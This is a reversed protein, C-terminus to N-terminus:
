DPAMDRQHDDEQVVPGRESGVAQWGMSTARAAVEPAAHQLAQDFVGARLLTRLQATASAGVLGACPSALLHARRRAVRVAGCRLCAAHSPASLVQHDRWRLPPVAVQQAAPVSVEAPIPKPSFYAACVGWNKRVQQVSAACLRAANWFQPMPCRAREAAARRSPTALLHCATCHWGGQCRQLEHTGRAARRAAAPDQYGPCLAAGLQRAKAQTRATRGCGICRVGIGRGQRVPGPLPALQCCVPPGPAAQLLPLQPKAPAKAKRRKPRRWLPKHVRRAVHRVSRNASIAALQVSSVVAQLIGALTVAQQRAALLAPAPLLSKALASAARDAMDNGMWHDDPFGLRRAEDRALHAKVWVPRVESVLLAWLDGNPGHLQEPGPRGTAALTTVLYQADVVIQAPGCRHAWIL